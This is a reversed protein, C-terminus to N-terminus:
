PWGETLFQDLAVRTGVAEDVVADLLRGVRENGRALPGGLMQPDASQERRM